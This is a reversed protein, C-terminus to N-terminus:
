IAANATCPPTSTRLKIIALDAGRVICENKSLCGHVCAMEEECLIVSVDYSFAKDANRSIKYSVRKSGALDNLVARPHEVTVNNRVIRDLYNMMNIRALFKECEEISGQSDIFLAGLISEVIDSYFKEAGLQALPAWPYVDGLMLHCRIPECLQSYRKLCSQQVLPIETSDHRMFKWLELRGKHITQDFQGFESEHNCAMDNEIGSEMCLFALFHANVMAAKIGTMKNETM